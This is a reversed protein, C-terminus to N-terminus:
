RGPLRDFEEVQVLVYKSGDPFPATRFFEEEDAYPAVSPIPTVQLEGVFRPGPYQYNPYLIWHETYRRDTPARPTVFVEGVLTGNEYLRHKTSPDIQAWGVGSFLAVLGLAMLFRSRAM